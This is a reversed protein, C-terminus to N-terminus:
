NTKVFGAFGDKKLRLQMAVADARSGFSGVKLLYLQSPESPVSITSEYGKAKLMGSKTEAEKRQRFAGVQVSYRVIAATTAVRDSQKKAKPEAVVAKEPEKTQPQTTKALPEVAATPAKSDKVAERGIDQYWNLDKKVSEEAGATSPQSNKASEAVMPVTEVRAVNQAGAQLGQKKGEVYGLFFFAGCIGILVAFLIILKRNDLVFQVGPDPTSNEM